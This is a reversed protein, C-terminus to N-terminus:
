HLYCFFKQKTRPTWVKLKFSHNLLLHQICSKCYVTFLFFNYSPSKKLSKGRFRDFNSTASVYFRSSKLYFM